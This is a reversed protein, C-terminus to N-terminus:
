RSHSIPDKIQINMPFYEGHTPQVDLAPLDVAIGDLGGNMNEWTYSYRTIRGNNKSLRFEFPILIHVLPLSDRLESTRPNGPAGPPLAAVVSREDAMYRGDIYNMLSEFCPSNPEADNTVTYTLQTTGQPVSGPSVNFANLEGIPMEPVTNTFRVKGGNYPKEIRHFTRECHEPRDFLHTEEFGSAENNYTLLDAVGFAAGSIEMYNWPEDPMTFTISRGSVSYCNCDPLIFYDTRGPLISRNYVNPWTTERIGDCGKWMWQKLDYADHIEVKRVWTSSAELYPPFVSRDDWGYRHLWEDRCVSDSLDRIFPGSEIQGSGESLRKIDDEALMRNYIRIEDFDAGRIDPGGPGISLNNMMYGHVGFIGLGAYYVATTDKRAALAGNFYFRIGATEDWTLAMHVWEDAQPIAPPTYSVRTRALNIDTVFADFGSGNYDIRLFQMDFSTHDNHSVQFIKFPTEGLPDRARFFFALTGREAYINGPASYALIHTNHPCSLGTGLAGNSVFEINATSLPGAEGQAYDATLGGKGSLYFLLGSQQANVSTGSFICLGSAFLVILLNKM